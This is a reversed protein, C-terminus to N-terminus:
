LHEVGDRESRKYLIEGLAPLVLFSPSFYMEVQFWLVAAVTGIKVSWSVTTYMEQM